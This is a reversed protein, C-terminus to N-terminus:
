AGRNDRQFFAVGDGKGDVGHCQECWKTYVKKGLANEQAPLAAATALVLSLLTWSLRRM